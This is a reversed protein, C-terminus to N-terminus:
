PQADCREQAAWVASLWQDGQQEGGGNSHGPSGGSAAPRRATNAGAPAPAAASTGDRHQVAPAAPAKQVCLKPVSAPSKKGGMAAAWASLSSPPSDQGPPPGAAGGLDGAASDEVALQEHGM